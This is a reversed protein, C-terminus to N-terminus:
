QADGRATFSGRTIRRGLSLEAFLLGLLAFLCWRWIERGDRRTKLEEAFKSSSDVVTAGLTEAISGLMEESTRTLESETKGATVAVKSPNLQSVEPVSCAFELLGPYVAVDTFAARGGELVCEAVQKGLHEAVVKRPQDGDAVADGAAEVVLLQGCAINASPTARVVSHVLQQMLTVFVPELPLNSWRDAASVALMAVKGEGFPHIVLLPSGDSFRLVVNQEDTPELPQWTRFRLDALRGSEARNFVDLRPYQIRENLVELQGGVKEVAFKAPLLPMQEVWRQNYWGVNLAEEPFVVLGGGQAVYEALRDAIADSVESAGVLVVAEVDKTIEETSVEAADLVTVEFRNRQRQNARFPALALQLFKVGAASGPNSKSAVLLVRKPRGVEVVQFCTDDASLADQADIRASLSHWGPQDFQCTFSVRELGGAVVDVTQNALELGDAGFVVRVSEKPADAHSELELVFNTPEGLAVGDSADGWAQSDSFRISLNRAAPEASPQALALFSLQIPSENAALRDRISALQISEFAQWDVDRFDSALVIHKNPNNMQSVAAIGALISEAIANGGEGVRVGEIVRQVRDPDLTAGVIRDRPACGTTWLGFEASRHSGVIKGLENQAADFVTSEGDSQMMSLSNDLLLLLALSGTGGTVRSQTLVPRALCIALLVPILCRLILLLISEWQVQRSNVQLASELLQMAGWEVNRFRSRNLLHIMLPALLAAAGGLLAVNLFSM